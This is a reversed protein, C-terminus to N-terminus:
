PLILMSDGYSYFRYRQAIAESYVSKLRTIDGLFAGVLALLTSRPLHFNTMLADTYRFEFGPTILLDTRARRAGHELEDLDSPLSELTRVSTTGIALVRGGAALTARLSNVAASPVSFSEDHMGHQEVFETEVPKFTGAGVHLTIMARTAGRSACAELLENTFHLGATPAAVAGSEEGAYVTQYRERDGPEGLTEDGRHRRAGLIYPPLPTYGVQELVREASADTLPKVLWTSDRKEVIRLRLRERPEGETDLRDPALFELELGVRLKRNSKLMVEWIEGSDPDHGAGLFLGEVRGHTDVRYGILRAPLVRTDNMVLLDGADIFMPLDRVLHHELRDPNSRSVVLMRAEDRRASPHTAILEAPLDYELDSTRLM